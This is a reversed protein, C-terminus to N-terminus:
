YHVSPLHPFRPPPVCSPAVIIPSVPLVRFVRTQAIGISAVEHLRTVFAFALLLVGVAILDVHKSM